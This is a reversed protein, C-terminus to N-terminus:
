SPILVERIAESLEKQSYPKTMYHSIGKERANEASVKTSYGTCIIVPMGPRAKLIEAILESGSMEPMSQDTIILDFGDPNSKLIELAKLSSSEAVVEYGLKELLRQALKLIMEEDDVLLIRETGTQIHATTEVELVEEGKEETVPFCVNFTSGRGPESKVAILGGHRKVIGHVVSLGMGTGKTKGKTTYFPDFIRAITEQNMGTGTDSISLCAYKGPSLGPKHTLAEAKLNAEQLSVTVKGKEDMAHVANTFLNMLLQHLQTPDAMVMSCDEFIEQIISVTTPTVSRLLKLTEKIMVQPSIPMLGTKEKRSFALIQGVLEKARNGAKLVQKIHDQALSSEPIDEKILEAYGLIATLINNFDHAIGGAMTGVVEMKHAQFLEEEMKKQETIDRAIHIIHKLEGNKDLVPSSIEHYIKGLEKHPMTAAHTQADKLTLLEPCNTCPQSTGRFVEHCCKSNLGGPEVQFAQHAARNARIIRMDKDQITIIDTMADFTNEWEKKSNRLINEIKQQETLDRLRLFISIPQNNKDMVVKVTTEIPKGTPNDPHDSEMIIIADRMEKQALCVPCSIKEGQPHMIKEIHQGTANQPTTGTMQYFVTNARLIHRDVDLLYLADDSADMAASWERSAKMLEQERISLQQAMYDFTRGLNGLEGGSVLDSVRVTLDGDALRLSSKELLAIRDTILRKGTIWALYLVFLLSIIFVSLNFFFIKNAKALVPAFPIGARVYMYPTQQGPLTLKRYSIFRKLGDHDVSIFTDVAPGNKMRNFADGEYRQGTLDNDTEGGLIMGKKDLLFYNSNPPLQFDSLLRTEYILDIGLIIVGAIEDNDGYYPYYFSLVQKGSYQGMRYQGPSFKGSTLAASLSEMDTIKLAKTPLASCWIEGAPNTVFITSYEPNLKIIKNLTVELGSVNRNRLDSMQSLVKMLQETSSVLAQHQLGIATALSQTTHRTDSILANKQQIGSYVLIAIAFVALLSVILLLISKISLSSLRIM